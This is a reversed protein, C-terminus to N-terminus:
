IQYRPWPVNGAAPYNGAFPLGRRSSDPEESSRHRHHSRYSSTGGSDARESRIAHGHFTVPQQIIERLRYGAAVLIQSKVLDIGTIAETVPHEVQIRANLDSLTAM